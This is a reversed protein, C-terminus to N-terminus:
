KKNEKELEAQLQDRIKIAELAEDNMGLNGYVAVLLQYVILKNEKNTTNKIEELHPLALKYKAKYADADDPNEKQLQAGWKSYAISLDLLVTEYAANDKDIGSELAKKLENVAEEYKEEKILEVGKDIYPSVTVMAIKSDISKIIQRVSISDPLIILCVSFDEKAVKYLKLQEQSDKTKQGKEFNDAGNNYRKIWADLIESAYSNKGIKRYQKFASDAGPLKNMAIRSAGLYYWAEENSPNSQLEKMFEKEAKEFDGSKFALM